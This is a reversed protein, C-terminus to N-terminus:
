FNLRFRSVVLCDSGFFRIDKISPGWKLDTKESYFRIDNMILGKSVWSVLPRVEIRQYLNVTSLESM